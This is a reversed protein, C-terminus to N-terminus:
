NSGYEKSVKDMIDSLTEAKITKDHNHYTWVECAWQDKDWYVYGCFDWGAYQAFYKGTKLKKAIDSKISNDANSMVIDLQSYEENTTISM